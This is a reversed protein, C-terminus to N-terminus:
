ETWWGPLPAQVDVDFEPISLSQAHLFFKEQGPIMTTELDSIAKPFRSQNTDETNDAKGRKNRQFDKKAKRRSAQAPPQFSSYLPDFIIPCGIETCHVRVQHKRGTLTEVELLTLGQSSSEDGYTRVVRYKSAASKGGVLADIVGEQELSSTSPSPVLALYKKKVRRLFFSAILKMHAENSKALCICGSTGRDLRHVIGRAVPNVTSLVFNMDILSDELSIDVKSGDDDPAAAAGKKAKKRKASIKGASTKKTHYCVQGAAKSLVILDDSEHLIHIDPGYIAQLQKEAEKADLKTTHSGKRREAALARRRQSGAAKKSMQQARELILQASEQNSQNCLSYYVLSLTVIDPKIMTSEDEDHMEDILELMALAVQASNNISETEDSGSSSDCCSGLIANLIAALSKNSSSAEVAATVLEDAVADVDGKASLQEVIQNSRIIDQVGDTERDEYAAKLVNALNTEADNCSITPSASMHHGVCRSPHRWWEFQQQHQPSFSSRSVGSSRIVQFAAACGWGRHVARAALFSIMMLMM